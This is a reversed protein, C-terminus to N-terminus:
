RFDTSVFLVLLNAKGHLWRLKLTSQIVESDLKQLANIM